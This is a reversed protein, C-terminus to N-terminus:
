SIFQLLLILETFTLIIRFEAWSLILLRSVTIGFINIWIPVKIICVLCSTILVVQFVFKIKHIDIIASKRSQVNIRSTELSINM